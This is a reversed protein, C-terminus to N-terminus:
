PEPEPNLDVSSKDPFFYVFELDLTQIIAIQEYSDVKFKNSIFPHKMWNVPLQIFYGIKVQSPSIKAVSM